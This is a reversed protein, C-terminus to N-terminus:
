VTEDIPTLNCATRETAPMNAGFPLNRCPDSFLVPGSVLSRYRSSSSSFYYRLPGLQKLLLRDGFGGGTSPWQATGGNVDFSKICLANMCYAPVCSSCRHAFHVVCFCFGGTPISGVVTRKRLAREALQAISAYGIRFNTTIFAAPMSTYLLEMGSRLKESTHGNTLAGVLDPYIQTQRQCNGKSQCLTNASSSM